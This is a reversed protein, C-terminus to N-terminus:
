NKRKRLDFTRCNKCIKPLKNSHIKKIFERYESRWIQSFPRELLNGFSNEEQFKRENAENIACCPQVHGTVLIFPETWRTCMTIPKVPRINENWSVFVNLERAKKEATLKIDSPLETLLDKVEEFYLLNSFFILTAPNGHREVLSHVLEIFKPIEHFNLKTIIYHFWVEPLPTKQETKIRILNKVNNLVKEFNTGVRIKEYTEKTAADISLHIKEIGIEVLEKAINENILDFTDFFEVYVSKKKLYRLMKMFDRNLFNSGIGTIGVWKLKPFQDIIKKFEEFSMDRAPVDWYTHECIICKLHCRTTVEIEITRPYPTLNPNLRYLWDMIALGADRTFLSVWFYVYASKFKLKKLLHFLIRFRSLILGFVKLRRIDLIEM